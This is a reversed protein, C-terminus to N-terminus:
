LGFDANEAYMTGILYVVKPAQPGHFVLRISHYSIFSSNDNSLQIFLIVTAKVGHIIDYVEAPFDCYIM